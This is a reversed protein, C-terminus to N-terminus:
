GEKDTFHVLEPDVMHVTGDRYEVLAYLKRIVVASGYAPLIGTQRFHKNIRAMEEPNCYTNIKLLAEDRETWRHFLASIGDVECPRSHLEDMTLLQTTRAKKHKRM